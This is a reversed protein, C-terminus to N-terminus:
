LLRRDLPFLQFLTAFITFILMWSALHLPGYENTLILAMGGYLILTFIISTLTISLVCTIKSIKEDLAM